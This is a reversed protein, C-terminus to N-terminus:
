ILNSEARLTNPSLSSIHITMANPSPANSNLLEAEM